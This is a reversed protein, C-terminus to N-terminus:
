ERTSRERGGLRKLMRYITGLARDVLPATTQEAVIRLRGEEMEQALHLLSQMAARQGQPDVFMVNHTTTSYWSLKLRRPQAGNLFEFWTGFELSALEDMRTRINEPLERPAITTDPIEDLMASLPSEPFEPTLNAAVKPDHAQVAHQCAVIDQQLRRIADDHYGGLGELGKAIDELLAPRLDKLHQRGEADLATGSWALQEAVECARQWEESGEGNRLLIFTLADTWSHELFERLLKPIDRQLLARNVTSVAQERAGLLRDRGRAAEVARRERLDAKQRINATYTNLESQLHDFLALDGAFDQVVREVIWHLKALPGREEIDGGYQIGAAAMANLLRRAPHQAQTFLAGDQLAVKLYPMHLHSLVTKCSDPLKQDNLIFEFIMGVLDIVDAALESLKHEGPRLSHALLQEHLDSKVKDVPQASRLRLALEQASLFQLRNLAALLEETSYTLAASPAEFSSIAASEGFHQQGRRRREAILATLSDFLAQQDDPPTDPLAGHRFLPHADGTVPEGQPQERRGNGPLPNARRAPAARYKLNPLIGADTLRQNLQDYMPALHRMVQQDFLVYLITKIRLPFSSGQLIGHYAQAVAQPGFPNSDEGLKSGHNLLALRQDLAFLAQASHAKVQNVMNTVLLSEEYEDNDVLTLQEIDLEEVVAAPTHTGELFDTLGKAIRQHYARELQPRQRRIERMADFFLSQVQNNEAKDACEFLTDDAQTFVQALSEALYSMAIQRCGQVLEGFRPQIARSALSGPPPTDTSSM